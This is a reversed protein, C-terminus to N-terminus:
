TFAMKLRSQKTRWARSSTRASNSVACLRKWRAKESASLVPALAESFHEIPNEFLGGASVAGLGLLTTFLVFVYTPFRSANMTPIM